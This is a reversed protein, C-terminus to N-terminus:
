EDAQSLIAKKCYGCKEGNDASINGCYVCFSQESSLNLPYNTGWLWVVRDGPRYYARATGALEKKLVFKKSKGRSDNITLVLADVKKLEKTDFFSYCWMGVTTKENEAVALSNQMSDVTGSFDHFTFMRYLRLFYFSLFSILITGNIVIACEVAEPLGTSIEATKYTFIWGLGTLALWCLTRLLYEVILKRRCKQLEVLGLSCNM